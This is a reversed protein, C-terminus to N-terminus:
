QRSRGPPSRAFKRPEPAHIPSVPVGATAHRAHGRHHLPDHDGARHDPEQLQDGAAVAHRDGLQAGDAHLAHERVAEQPLREGVHPQVRGVARHVDQEVHEREPHEAPLELHRPARPAEQIEIQHAARARAQDDQAPVRQDAFPRRREARGARDVAHEGGEAQEPGVARDHEQERRDGHARDPENGKQERDLERHATLAVHAGDTVEATHHDGSQQQARLHLAHEAQAGRDEALLRVIRVAAEQARAHFPEADRVIDEVM